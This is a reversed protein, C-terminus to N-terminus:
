LVSNKVVRVIACAERIRASRGGRFLNEGGNMRFEAVASVLHIAANRLVIRVFRDAFVLYFLWWVVNQDCCVDAVEYENNKTVDTIEKPFTEGLLVKRMEHRVIYTRETAFPNSYESM